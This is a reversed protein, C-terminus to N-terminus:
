IRPAPNSTSTSLEGRAKVHTNDLLRSLALLAGVDTYFADWTCWGFYDMQLSQARPQSLKHALTCFSRLREAVAAISTHVLDFPDPGTAVFLLSSEPLQEDAAEQGGQGSTIRWEETHVSVSGESGGLSTRTNNGPLPLLLSYSAGGSNVLLFSTSPPIDECGRGWRPALWWLKMHSLALWRADKGLKGLSVPARDTVSYIGQSGKGDFTNGGATPTALSLFSGRGDAHM